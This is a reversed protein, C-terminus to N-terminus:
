KQFTGYRPNIAVYDTPYNVGMLLNPLSITFPPNQHFPSYKQGNGIVGMVFGKYDSRRDM